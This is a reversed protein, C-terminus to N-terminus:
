FHLVSSVFAVGLRWGKLKAIGGGHELMWADLGVRDVVFFEFISSKLIGRNTNKLEVSDVHWGAVWVVFAV